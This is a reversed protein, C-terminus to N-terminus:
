CEIEVEQERGSTNFDYCRRWSEEQSLRNLRATRAAREIRKILQKTDKDISGVSGVQTIGLVRPLIDRIQDSGSV